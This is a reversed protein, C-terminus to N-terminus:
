AFYIEGVKVMCLLKRFYMVTILYVIGMDRFLNKNESMKPKILINM